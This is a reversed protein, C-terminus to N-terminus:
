RFEQLWEFPIPVKGDALHADYMGDLLRLVGRLDLREQLRRFDWGVAIGMEALFAIRAMPFKFSQDDLDLGSGMYGKRYGFCDKVRVALCRFYGDVEDNYSDQTGAERDLELCTAFLVNLLQVLHLPSIGDRSQTYSLNREIRNIYDNVASSM